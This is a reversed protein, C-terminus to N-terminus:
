ALHQELFAFADDQMPVDFRHPGDYFRGVYSARRGALTYLKALRRDAAKMGEPTFLADEKDFQVM